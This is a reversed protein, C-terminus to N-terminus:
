TSAQSRAPSSRSVPPDGSSQNQSPTPTVRAESALRRVMEQPSGFEKLLQQQRDAWSPSRAMDRCRELYAVCGLEDATPRLREILWDVVQSVPRVEFTHANVLRAAKGYRAALWKNQSVMVPHSDHQYTGHDIEDSLAKVLCQTLAALALVDDLSGPM